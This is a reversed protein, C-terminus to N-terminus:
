PASLAHPPIYSRFWATAKAMVQGFAPEAYVECHGFGRLTALKNPEGARAYFLASEEPPVLRADDTTIFLIPRPTIRDVVWEPHFGRTEDINELPLEHIAAPNARRAIAALETSQRDPLLIDSRDAM